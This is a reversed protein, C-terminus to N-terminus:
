RKILKILRNLDEESLFDIIIQGREGRKVITVNAGLSERLLDEMAQIYADKEKRVGGGKEKKEQSILQEVQRVSLGKEIIKECFVEQERRNTLALLARAHGATIKGEKLCDRVKQPLTLLRLSNAVAPRSKGIREAIEEQTLHFEDILRRYGLAEELPNLDKRQLNEVLAMELVGPEATEKVIVPVESLGAEKAAHLRREGAILEYGNLTKRVLLPQLIGHVKVSGVLESIEGRANERPQYPNLKIEEIKLYKIEGAVLGKGEGSILADLGKGLVKKTM